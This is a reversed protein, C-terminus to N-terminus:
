YVWGSWCGIGSTSHTINYILAFFQGYFVLWAGAGRTWEQRGPGNVGVWVLPALLLIFWPGSHRDRQVWLMPDFLALAVAYAFVAWAVRSRLLQAADEDRIRPRGVVLLIVGLLWALPPIWGHHFIWAEKAGWGIAVTLVATVPLWLLAAWSGRRMLVDEKGAFLEHNFFKQRL